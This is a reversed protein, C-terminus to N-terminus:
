RHLPLNSVCVKVFTATLNADVNIETVVAAAVDTLFFNGVGASFASRSLSVQNAIAFLNTSANQGAVFDFISFGIAADTALVATTGPISILPTPLLGGPALTAVTFQQSLTGDANVDFTALLGLSYHNVM